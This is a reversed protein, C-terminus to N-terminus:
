LFEGLVDFSQDQVGKRCHFLIISIFSSRIRENLSQTTSLFVNFSAKAYLRWNSAVFCVDLLLTQSSVLRSPHSYRPIVAEPYVFLCPTIRQQFQSCVSFRLHWQLFSLLFQQGTLSAFPTFRRPSFEFRNTSDVPLYSRQAFPRILPNFQTIAVPAILDISLLM